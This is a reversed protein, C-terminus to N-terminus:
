LLEDVTSDTSRPTPNDRPRPAAAFGSRRLASLTIPFGVLLAISTFVLWFGSWDFASNTADDVFVPGTGDCEVHALGTIASSFSAIADMAKTGPQEVTLRLAGPSQNPRAATCQLGDPTLGLAIERNVGGRISIIYTEGAALRVYAPPDGGRAYAHPENRSDKVYLSWGVLGLVILLAGVVLGRLM